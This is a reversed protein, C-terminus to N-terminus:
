REVALILALALGVGVWATPACRWTAAATQLSLRGALELERETVWCLPCVQECDEAGSCRIMKMRRNDFAPEGAPADPCANDDIGNADRDACTRDTCSGYHLPAGLSSQPRGAWDGSGGLGGVVAPARRSTSGACCACDDNGVGPGDCSGAAAAGGGLSDVFFPTGSQCTRNGSLYDDCRSCHTRVAPCFEYGAALTDASSHVSTGRLDLTRLVPLQTLNAVDGGVRSCGRLDLSVAADLGALAGVDGSIAKDVVEVHVVRGRHEDCTIGRWGEDIDDWGRGCPGFDEELMETDCPECHGCTLLCEPATRQPCVGRMTMNMEGTAAMEECYEEWFEKAPSTSNWDCNLRGAALGARCDSRFDQCGSSWRAETWQGESEMWMAGGSTWGAEGAATNWPEGSSQFRILALCDTQEALLQEAPDPALQTCPQKSLIAAGGAEFCLFTASTDVVLGEDCTFEGVVSIGMSLESIPRGHSYVFFGPNTLEAMTFNDFGGVGNTANVVEYCGRVATDDLDTLTACVAVCPQSSLTAAGGTAGCEFVVSEDLTYGGACTFTGFSLAGSLAAQTAAAGQAYAVGPAAPAMMFNPASGDTAHAVPEAGRVADLNLDALVDCVPPGPAPQCCADDDTGALHAAGDRRRHPCGDHWSCYSFRFSVEPGSALAPIALRLATANGAVATDILDLLLLQELSHLPALPGFVETHGLELYQLETLAALLSVNAAVPRAYLVLKTVRQANGGYCDEGALGYDACCTVGSWGIESDWWGDGCPETDATWWALDGNPDGGPPAAASARFALLADADAQQARASPAAHLLLILLQLLLRRTRRPVPLRMPAAAALGVPGRLQQGM